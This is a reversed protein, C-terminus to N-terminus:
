ELYAYVPPHSITRECFLLLLHMGSHRHIDESYEDFKRKRENKGRHPEVVSLLEKGYTAAVKGYDYQIVGGHDGTPKGVVVDGLRIDHEFSPAGGGIGVVLAYRISPFTTKLQAVSIAASNTGYIGLPLCVIMINHGQIEGFIYSNEDSPAKPLPPHQTDLMLVAVIKELSLACIWAVTYDDHFLTTSM